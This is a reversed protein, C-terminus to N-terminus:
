LPGDGDIGHDGPPQHRHGQEPAIHGLAIGFEHEGVDFQAKQAVIGVVDAARRWRVEAGGHQEDGDEAAVLVSLVIWRGTVLEHPPSVFSDGGGGETIADGLSPALSGTNDLVFLPYLTSRAGLKM